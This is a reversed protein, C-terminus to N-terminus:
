RDIFAWEPLMGNGLMTDLLEAMGYDPDIARAEDVHAGAQSGRGLAWNLWALMCLPALRHAGRVRAVLVLMRAIGRELREPDPREGLGMMVDATAQAFSGDLSELEPARDWMWEGFARDRAWQLMVLDRVAASQVLFLLLAGHAGVDADDWDLAREVFAAPDELELFEAPAEILGDLWRERLDGYRGIQEAVRQVVDAPADVVRSVAAENAPPGVEKAAAAAVPSDLVESLPRGGPPVVPDLYSAWGDAAQCLSERLEFGSREVQRELLAAFRAGPVESGGDFAADTFVAIAVGDVRPLKCLTGIMSTAVRKQVVGSSSGPLGFRIAGCTRRGRFAVFVVSDRPSFGVLAPVIALLDTPGGVKLVLTM